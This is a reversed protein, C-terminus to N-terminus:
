RSDGGQKCFQEMLRRFRSEYIIEYLQAKDSLAAEGREATRDERERDRM